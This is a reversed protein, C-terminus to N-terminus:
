ISACRWSLKMLRCRWLREILGGHRLEGDNAREKICVEVLEGHPLRKQV